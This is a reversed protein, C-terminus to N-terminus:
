SVHEIAHSNNKVLKPLALFYYIGLLLSSVGVVYFIADVTVYKPFALAIFSQMMIMSIMSLPAMIGQVRGMMKKDVLEGLWGSFSVNFTPMTLVFIFHLFLYMFITSVQTEAIFIIGPLVFSAIMLKYYPFKKILYTSLLSGVLLGIGLVAALLVQIEEYIDPALKYKMMFINMVTLGGNIIGIFFIGLILTFVIKHGLVFLIGEKFDLFITKVKIDKISAQGNPLKVEQDINLRWIFYGSLTYSIADIIIAGEIGVTWYVVAGIGNGIIFFISILLQNMGMAIPYEEENLVGHVISSQAPQFFKSVASRLFLIMYVFVIWDLSIFVLLLLCLLASIWDSYVAIKQRDLKDAIVGTLFFVFLTPLSYMMEVVTAYFPQNSFRDLLYFMLAILGIISGLQSTFQAFFLNRYVHNQFLSKYERINM